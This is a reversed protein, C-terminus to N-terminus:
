KTVSGRSEVKPVTTAQSPRKQSKQSGLGLESGVEDEEPSHVEEAEGEGEGRALALVTEPLYPLFMRLHEVIEQLVHVLPSSENAFLEDIEELNM